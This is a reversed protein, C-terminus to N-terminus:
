RKIENLLKVIDPHMGKTKGTSFLAINEAMCERWSDKARQTIAYTKKWDIGKSRALTYFNAIKSHNDWHVIHSMEHRVMGEFTDELSLASHAEYFDFRKSKISQIMKEYKRVAKEVIQRETKLLTAVKLRTKLMSLNGELDGLKFGSDAVVGIRLEGKGFMRAEANNWGRENMRAIHIKDLKDINRFEERVENGIKNVTNAQRVSLGGYNIKDVINKRAWDEAEEITKASIFKSVREEVVEEFRKKLDAISLPRGNQHIMDAMSLKHKKWLKFRGPGLVDIQVAEPQTKLWGDYTMKGPVPKGIGLLKEDYTMAARQTPSLKELKRIKAKSLTSKPGALDAFSKLIPITTSRCQWHYPANGPWRIRHGVPRLRGDKYIWQKGDYGRCQPTTRKDLTAVIEYGNILDRNGEYMEMRAENAVQMVSTRVLATANRKSMSILGPATATGRIRGVLEGIAEGRVLGLQVQRTADAMQRASKKKFDDKQSDWWKGIVQGDIMTNDVIAKLGEQTLTVNAIDAGIVRNLNGVTEKGTFMSLQKFDKNSISKIKDYSKDAIGNITTQLNSLRKRKWQTIPRRADTQVLTALIEDQAENLIKVVKRRVGEAYRELNVTSRIQLDRMKTITSKVAAM